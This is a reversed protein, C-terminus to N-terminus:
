FEFYCSCILWVRFFVMARFLGFITIVPVGPTPFVVCASCNACAVPRFCRDTFAITFSSPNWSPLSSSVPLQITSSSLTRLMAFALRGKNRKYKTRVSYKVIELEEVVEFREWQVAGAAVDEVPM